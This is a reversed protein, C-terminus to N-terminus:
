SKSCSMSLLQQLTLFIGDFNSFGPSQLDGLVRRLHLPKSGCVSM